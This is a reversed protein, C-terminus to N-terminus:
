GLFGSNKLNAILQKTVHKDNHQLEKKYLEKIKCSEYIVYFSKILVNCLVYPITSSTVKSLSYNFKRLTDISCVRFSEKVM